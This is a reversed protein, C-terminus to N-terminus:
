LKELGFDPLCANVVEIRFSRDIEVPRAGIIYVSVYFERQRIKPHDRGPFGVTNELEIASAAELIEMLRSM